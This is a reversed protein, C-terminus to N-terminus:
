LERRRCSCIRRLKRAIKQFLLVEIDTQAHLFEAKEKRIIENLRDIYGEEEARSILYRKDTPALYIFNANAETGVIFIKEPALCLSMIFNIGAPGGAGTVVIKKM